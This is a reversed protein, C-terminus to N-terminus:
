QPGPLSARERRIRLVGPREGLAVTAPMLRDAFEAAGRAQGHRTAEGPQLNWWTFPAGPAHVAVAAAPVNLRRALANCLATDLEGDRTLLVYPIQSITTRSAHWRWSAPRGAALEDWTTSFEREEALAFVALALPPEDETRPRWASQWEFCKAVSSSLRTDQGWLLGSAPSDTLRTYLDTFAPYVREDLTATSEGSPQGADFRGGVYDYSTFEITRGAFFVAYGYRGLTRSAEASVAFGGLDASLEHALLPNWWEIGATTEDLVWVTPSGPAALAFQTFLRMGPGLAAQLELQDEVTHSVVREVRCGSRALIRALAADGEKELVAPMFTKM